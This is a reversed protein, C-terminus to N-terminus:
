ASMRCRSSARRPCKMPAARRALWNSASSSGSADSPTSVTSVDWLGSIMTSAILRWSVPYLANGVGERPSSLAWANDKILVPIDSLYNGQQTAFVLKLKYKGAEQRLLNREGEGIGGSVYRIGQETRVEPRALYEQATSLGGLGTLLAALGITLIACPRM